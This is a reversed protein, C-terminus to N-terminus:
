IFNSKYILKLILLIFYLIFFIFKLKKFNFIKIILLKEM